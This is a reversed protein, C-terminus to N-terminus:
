NEEKIRNIYDEFPIITFYPKCGKIIMLTRIKNIEKLVGYPNKVFESMTKTNFSNLVEPSIFVHAPKGKSIAFVVNDKDINGIIKSGHKKIDSVKVYNIYM